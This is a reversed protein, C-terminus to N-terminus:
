RLTLEEICDRLTNVKAYLDKWLAATQKGAVGIHSPSRLEKGALLRALRREHDALRMVAAVTEAVLDRFAAREKQVELLREGIDEIPLLRSGILPEL